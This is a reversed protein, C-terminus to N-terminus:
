PHSSRRGPQDLWMTADAGDRWCRTARKKSTRGSQAAWRAVAQLGRCAAGGRRRSRCSARPGEPGTMTSGPPAQTTCSAPARRVIRPRATQWRWRLTERGFGPECRTSAARTHDVDDDHLGGFQDDLNGLRTEARSPELHRSAPRGDVCRPLARCCCGCSRVGAEDRCIRRGPDESRLM